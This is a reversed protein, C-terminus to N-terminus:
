AEGQQPTQAPPIPNLAQTPPEQTPMQANSANLARIAAVADAAHQRLDDTVSASPYQPSLWLAAMHVIAESYGDPFTQNTTQDPFLPLPTWVFAELNASGSFTPTPALLITATPLAYDYYGIDPIVKQASKQIYQSYEKESVLKIPFRLIQGGVSITMGLDEIKIFRTSSFTGGSGCTYNATGSSLASTVQAVSPIYLRQTNMNGIRNNIVALAAAAETANAGEGPDIVGLLLLAESVVQGGNLLESM